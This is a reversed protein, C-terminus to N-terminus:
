TEEVLGEVTIRPIGDPLIQRAVIVDSSKEGLVAVNRVNAQQAAQPM